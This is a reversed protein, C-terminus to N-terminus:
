RPYSTEMYTLCLIPTVKTLHIWFELASNHRRKSVVSSDIALGCRSSPSAESVSLTGSMLKESFKVSKFQGSTPSENQSPSGVECAADAKSDGDGGMVGGGVSGGVVINDGICIRAGDEHKRWSRNKQRSRQNIRMLRLMGARAKRAKRAKERKLVRRRGDDLLMWGSDMWGVPVYYNAIKLQIAGNRMAWYSVVVWRSGSLVLISGCKLAGIMIGSRISRTKCQSGSGWRKVHEPAKGRKPAGRLCENLTSQIMERSGDAEGPRVIQMVGQGVSLSYLEIEWGSSQANDNRENARCQVKASNNYGCQTQTGNDHLTITALAM